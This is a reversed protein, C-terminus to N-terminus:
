KKGGDYLCFWKGLPYLLTCNDGNAYQYSCTYSPWGGKCWYLDGTGTSPSYPHVARPICYAEVASCQEVCAESGPVVCRVEAGAPVEEGDNCVLAPESTGPADQPERPVDGYGGVGTPIIISGGVGASEDGQDRLYCEGDTYNCAAFCLIFIPIIALATRMM